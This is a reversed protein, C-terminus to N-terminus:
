PRGAAFGGARMTGPGARAPRPVDPARIEQRGGGLFADVAGLLAEPVEWMPSHGADPIVRAQVSDLRGQLRKVHRAPFIADHEGCVALVPCDLRPIVYLDARERQGAWSVFHPLGRAIARDGGASGSAHLYDLLAERRESPIADSRYVMLGRFLARGGARSSVGVAPRILASSAMRIFPHVARGLGASDVLVLRTVELDRRAALHAAVLGGFSTGCLAFRRVGLGRLWSAIRRATRRGLPRGPDLGSSLGFGPLDPALVRRHRALERAVAFWNAGGGAAGHLLVLPELEDGGQVEMHHTRASASSSLFGRARVGGTALLRGAASLIAGDTRSLDVSLVPEASGEPLRWAAVLGPARHGSV